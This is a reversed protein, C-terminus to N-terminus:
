LRFHNLIEDIKRLYYNGFLLYHVTLPFLQYIPLREKWNNELLHYSQYFIDYPSGFLNLMAIDVENHGFYSAPDILYPQSHHAIINGTWLDGHLLSPKPNTPIFQDLKNILKEIKSATAVPLRSLYQGLRYHGWFEIWNSSTKNIVEVKGFAYDESWGYTDNHIQHLNTLMKGLNLWTELSFSNTEQIVELILITQDAFIVKPVNIHHNGMFNLMNGEAIPSFGDKIVYHHKDNTTIIFTNSLDGQTLPQAQEITVGLKQEALHILSNSAKSM